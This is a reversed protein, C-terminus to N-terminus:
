VDIFYIGYFFALQELKCQFVEDRGWAVGM